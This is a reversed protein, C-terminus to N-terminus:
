YYNNRNGFIYVVVIMCGFMAMIQDGISYQIWGTYWNFLGIMMVVIAGVHVNRRSFLGGACLMLCYGFVTYNWQDEWDFWRYGERIDTGGATFSRFYYVPTGNNHTPISVWSEVTYMADNPVYFVLGANGSGQVYNRYSITTNNIKVVTGNNPYIQTVTTNYNTISINGDRSLISVSVSYHTLNYQDYSFGYQIHDSSTNIPPVNSAEDTKHAGWVRFKYATGGPTLTRSTNINQSEDLLDIRYKATENLIFTISGSKDTYGSFEPTTYDNADYVKVSVNNYLNGFIDTVTLTVYHPTFYTPTKTLAINFVTLDSTVLSIPMPDPTTQYDTATVRVAYVGNGPTGTFSYQGSSDTVTTSSWSENWITVVAGSVPHSTDTDYIMGIFGMIYTEGISPVYDPSTYTNNWIDTATAINGQYGVVEVKGLAPSSSLLTYDRGAQNTYKPDAHVDTSSTVHFYDGAVNNYMVNNNSNVTHIHTDYFTNSIGYGSTPGNTNPRVKTNTILNNHITWVYGSSTPTIGTFGPYIYIGHGLVSDIVNNDIDVNTWGCGVIGGGWLTKTHMGSNYIINHYIHLSDQNMTTAADEYAIIWIGPGFVNAITNNYVEINDMPTSTSKEIQIGPGCYTKNRYDAYIYNDHFAVNRTNWLRLGANDRALIVNNYCEVGNCRTAFFADHGMMEVANNYFLINSSGTIRLGDGVSNYMHMNHVSVNTATRLWFVNDYGGGMAQGFNNGNCNVNFGYVELNSIPYTAQDIMPTGSAWGPSNVVTLTATSDGTLKTNSYIKLPDTITYTYPGKLYITTSSNGQAYALAQNIQVQDASGDCRIDCNADQSITITAASSIGISIFLFTCICIYPLLRLFKKQSININM